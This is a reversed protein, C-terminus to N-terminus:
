QNRVLVQRRLTQLQRREVFGLVYSWGDLLLVEDGLRVHVVLLPEPPRTAWSWGQPIGCLLVKAAEETRRGVKLHARRSSSKPIQNM